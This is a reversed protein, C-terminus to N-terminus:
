KTRGRLRVGDLRMEATEGAEPVLRITVEGDAQFAPVLRLVGDQWGGQDALEVSGFPEVRVRRPGSGARRWLRLELATLELKRGAESPRLSFEFASGEAKGPLVHHAVCLGRSGDAARTTPEYYALKPLTLASATTAPDDDLSECTPERDGFTYNALVVGEPECTGPPTWNALTRSVEDIQRTVPKYEPPEGMLPCLFGGESHENWAYMLVSNAPCKAPHEAVYDLGAALHAGLEGPEPELWNWNPFVQPMVRFRPVWNAGSMLPPIVPVDDGAFRKELVESRISPWLQRFPLDKGVPGYRHHYLTVADAIGGRRLERHKEGQMMCVVYPNGVGAAQAAERLYQIAKALGGFGFTPARNMAGPPTPAGNMAGAGEDGLRKALGEPQYVYILRRGDLVRQYGPEQMLAVFERVYGRWEEFVFTPDYVTSPPEWRKLNGVAPGNAIVCFGIEGKLPSKLYAELNYRLGWNRDSREFGFAWYDIGASAAFRTEQDMAEQLVDMSLDPNFALPHEPDGTRRAFFPARWWYEEPKLFGFEQKQTIERDGSYM